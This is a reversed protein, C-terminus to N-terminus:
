NAGGQNTNLDRWKWLVRDHHQRWNYWTTAMRVCCSALAWGVCGSAQWVVTPQGKNKEKIEHLQAATYEPLPAPAGEYIKRVVFAGDGANNGEVAVIQGPFLAYEEIRSLDLRIRRGNCLALSGELMVSNSTLRGEASQCCIRGIHVQTDQSTPGIPDVNTLEYRRALAATMYQTHLDLSNARTELPTHMYHFGESPVSDWEKEKQHQVEGERKERVHVPSYVRAEGAPLAAPPKLLGMSKVVKGADKRHDYGALGPPSAESPSFLATGKPIVLASHDGPPRVRKSDPFDPSAEKATFQSSSRKVTPTVGNAKGSRGSGGVGGGDSTSSGGGGGGSGGGGRGGGDGEPTSGIEISLGFDNALDAFIGSNLSM